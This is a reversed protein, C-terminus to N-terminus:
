VLTIKLNKLLKMVGMFFDEKCLNKIDALFSKKKQFPFVYLFKKTPSFNKLYCQAIYHQRRKLM